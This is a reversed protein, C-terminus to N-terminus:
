SPPGRSTLLTSRSEAKATDCGRQPVKFLRSLGKQLETGEDTSPSHCQKVQPWTLIRLKRAHTHTHTHTPAETTDSEKLGWPSYLRGPKEAGPIRLALISSHTAM